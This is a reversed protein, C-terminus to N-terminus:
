QGSRRERIFVYAILALPGGFLAAFRWFVPDIKKYVSDISVVMFSGVWIIIALIGLDVM